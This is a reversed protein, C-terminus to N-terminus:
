ILMAQANAMKQFEAALLETIQTESLGKTVIEFSHYYSKLADSSVGLADAMAVSASTLENYQLAMESRVGEDLPNYKWKDSRFWGGKHLEWSNGQFGQEGGFTGQIGNMALKRGFAVNVIGGIAGGIAAGIPGFISGIATGAVVATNGSKGIASYGGSIMKGLMVGVMAGGLASAASGMTGSLTGMGAEQAALMQGQQSLMATGYQFSSGISGVMNGLGSFGSTVANYISNLSSMSSLLNGGGVAGGGFAAGVANGVPALIPRLVLTRFLDYL